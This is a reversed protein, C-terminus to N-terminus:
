GAEAPGDERRDPSQGQEGTPARPDTGESPIPDPRADQTEPNSRAGPVAPAFNPQEGERGVLFDSGEGRCVPVQVTVPRCEGSPGLIAEILARLDVEGDINVLGLPARANITFGIFHEDNQRELEEIARVLVESPRDKAELEMIRRIAQSLDEEQEELLKLSAKIINDGELKKEEFAQITIEQARIHRLLDVSMGHNLEGFTELEELIEGLRDETLVEPLLM